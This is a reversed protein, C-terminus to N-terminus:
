YVTRQEGPKTCISSFQASFFSFFFFIELRSLRQMFRQISLGNLIVIRVSKRAGSLYAEKGKLREKEKIKIKKRRKERTNNRSGFTSLPSAM